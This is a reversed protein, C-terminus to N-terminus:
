LTSWSISDSKPTRGMGFPGRAAEPEGAYRALYERYSMEATSEGASASSVGGASASVGPLPAALTFTLVAGALLALSKKWMHKM